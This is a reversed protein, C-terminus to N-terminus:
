LTVTGPLLNDAIVVPDVRPATSELSDKDNEVKGDVVTGGKNIEKGDVPLEAQGTDDGNSNHQDTQTLDIIVDILVATNTIYWPLITVGGLM